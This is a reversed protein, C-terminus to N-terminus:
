VRVGGKISELNENERTNKELALNLLHPYKKEYPPTNM